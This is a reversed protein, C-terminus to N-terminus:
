RRVAADAVDRAVCAVRFRRVAMLALYAPQNPTLVRELLSPTRGEEVSSGKSRRPGRAPVAAGTETGHRTEVM